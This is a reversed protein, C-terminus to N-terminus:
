SHSNAHIKGGSILETILWINPSFSLFGVNPIRPCVKVHAYPNPDGPWTVALFLSHLLCLGTTKLIHDGSAEADEPYKNSVCFQVGWGLGRFQISQLSRCPPSPGPMETNIFGGLSESARQLKLVVPASVNRSSFHTKWAFLRPQSVHVSLAWFMGVIPNSLIHLCPLM